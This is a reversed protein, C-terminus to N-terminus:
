IVRMHHECMIDTKDREHNKTLKSKIVVVLSDNLHLLLFHTFIVICVCM